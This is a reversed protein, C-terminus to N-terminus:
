TKPILKIKEYLSGCKIPLNLFLQEFVNNINFNKCEQQKNLFKDIYDLGGESVLFTLPGFGGKAMGSRKLSNCGLVYTIYAILLCLYCTIEDFVDELDPKFRETLFCYLFVSSNTVFHTLDRTLLRDSTFILWFQLDNTEITSMAILFEKYIKKSCFVVFYIENYDLKENWEKIQIYMSYKLMQDIFNLKFNTYDFVTKCFYSMYIIESKDNLSLLIENKNSALYKKIRPLYEELSYFEMQNGTQDINITDMAAFRKVNLNNQQRPQLYAQSLLLGFMTGPEPITTYFCNRIEILQKLSLQRSKPMDRGARKLQILFVTIPLVDAKSEINDKVFKKQEDNLSKFLVNNFNDFAM